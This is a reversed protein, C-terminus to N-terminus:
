SPCAASDEATGPDALFGTVATRACGSHLVVRSGPAGWTLTRVETAGAATLAAAAPEVAAAGAVPDAIGGLLLVPVDAPVSVPVQGPVPWTSCASLQAALIEGFPPTGAWEASLEDVRNVPVRRSLDSCGAVYPLSTGSLETARDRVSDPTEDPAASVLDGLIVDGPSPAGASAGSLDALASRVVDSLLAAPVTAGPDRARDLARAIAEVKQDADGPGCEPRTCSAAWLRLASDSGDLAARAAAEQDGDAPAPSDVVLTSLRGPHASAYALATRAGTGIGLVALGPVGWEQRLRELDEAAGAAGFDLERGQLQDTCSQATDALAGRVEPSTPDTGRDALGDLTRRAPFSLCAGAAGTRGRHDVVVLPRSDTLEPGASALRATLSDPSTEPGAVVVLPAADDPTGTATLRLVPTDGLMSCEVTAGEPVGRARNGACPTWTLDSRPVLWEPRDATERGTGGDADRGPGDGTALRPGTAPLPACAAAAVAVAALVAGLARTLRDRCRPAPHDGGRSM